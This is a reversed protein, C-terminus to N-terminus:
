KNLWVSDSLIIYVNILFLIYISCMNFIVVVYKESKLLIIYCLMMINIVYNRNKYFFVLLSKRM